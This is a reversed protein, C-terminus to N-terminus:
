LSSPLSSLSRTLALQSHRPRTTDHHHHHTTTTVHCFVCTSRGGWGRGKRRKFGRGIGRGNEKKKKERKCEKEQREKMGAKGVKHEGKELKQMTSLMQHKRVGNEQIITKFMSTTM